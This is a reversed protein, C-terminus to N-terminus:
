VQHKCDKPEQNAYVAQSLLTCYLLAGPATDDVPLGHQHPLLVALEHGTAGSARVALGEDPWLPVYGRPISPTWLAWGATSFRRRVLCPVSQQCADRADFRPVLGSAPPVVSSCLVLSCRMSSMFWISFHSPPPPLRNHTGPSTCLFLLLFPLSGGPGLFLSASPPPHRSARRSPSVPKSPSTPQTPQWPM